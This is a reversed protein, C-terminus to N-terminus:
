HRFSIRIIRLTDDTESFSLSIYGGNSEDGYSWHIHGMAEFVEDPEGLIARVSNTTAEGVVIEGWFYISVVQDVSIGQNSFSTIKGNRVLINEDTLNGVGTSLMTNSRIGADPEVYFSITRFNQPEFYNDLRELDQRVPYFDDALRGASEGLTYRTGDIEIWFDSINSFDIDIPNANTSNNGTGTGGGTGASSGNGGNEDEGCATIAFASVIMLAAILTLTLIRKM